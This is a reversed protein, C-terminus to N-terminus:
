LGFKMVRRITGQDSRMGYRRGVGLRWFSTDVGWVWGVLGGWDKKKKKKKKKGCLYNHIQLAEEPM